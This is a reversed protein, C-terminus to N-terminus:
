NRLGKTEEIEVFSDLTVNPIVPNLTKVINKRDNKVRLELIRKTRDEQCMESLDGEKKKFGKPDEPFHGPYQNYREPKM